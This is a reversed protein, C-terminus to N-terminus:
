LLCLPSQYRVDSVSVSLKVNLINAKQRKTNRGLTIWPVNEKFVNSSRLIFFKDEGLATSRSGPRDSQSTDEEEWEFHHNWKGLKGLPPRILAEPTRYYEEEARRWVMCIDIHYLIGNYNKNSSSPSLNSSYQWPLKRYWAVVVTTSLSVPTSVPEELRPSVQLPSLNTLVSSWTPNTLRMVWPRVKVPRENM